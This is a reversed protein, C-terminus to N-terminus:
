LGPLRPRLVSSFRWLLFCGILFALVVGGLAWRWWPWGTREETVAAKNLTRLENGSSVKVKETEKREEKMAGEDTENVEREEVEPGAPTPRTIRTRIVRKVTRTEGRTTEKVADTVKAEHWANVVQSETIATKKVTGCAVTLVAALAWGLLVLPWELRKM